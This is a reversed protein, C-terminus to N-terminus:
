KKPRKGLAVIANKSPKYASKPTPNPKPRDFINKVEEEVESDLHHSLETSNSNVVPPELNDFDLKMAEDVVLTDINASRWHTVKVRFESSSCSTLMALLGLFLFM